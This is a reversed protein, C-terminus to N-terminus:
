NCTISKKQRKRKYRLYSTRFYDAKHLDKIGVPGNRYIRELELFAEIVGDHALKGLRKAAEKASLTSPCIRWIFLPYIQRKIDESTSIPFAEENIPYRSDEGALLRGLAFSAEEHGDEALEKLLSIAKKADGQSLLLDAEILQCMKPDEEGRIIAKEIYAQGIKVQEADNRALLAYYYALLYNSGKQNAREAKKLLDFAEDQGEEFFYDLLIRGLILMAESSKLQVGIDASIIAEGVYDECYFPTNRDNGLQMFLRAKEAACDGDQGNQIGLNLYFMCLDYRGKTKAIDCAMLACRGNGLSAGISAFQFATDYDKLHSLYSAMLHALIGSKNEKAFPNLYDVAYEEGLRTKIFAVGESLANEKTLRRFDNLMVRRLEGAVKELVDLLTSSSIMPMNGNAFDSLLLAAQRSEDGKKFVDLLTALEKYAIAEYGEPIRIDLYQELFSAGLPRDNRLPYDILESIDQGNLFINAGLSVIAPLPKGNEDEFVSNYRVAYIKICEDENKPKGAWPMRLDCRSSLGKYINYVSGSDLRIEDKEYHLLASIDADDKIDSLFAHGYQSVLLGKRKREGRDIYHKIFLVDYQYWNKENEM